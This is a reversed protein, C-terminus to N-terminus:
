AGGGDLSYYMGNRLNVIVAEGDIVEAVVNPSNVRYVVDM